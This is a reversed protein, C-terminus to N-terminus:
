PVRTEALLEGQWDVPSGTGDPNANYNIQWSHWGRQTIDSSQCRFVAQRCNLEKKKDSSIYTDYATWAGNEHRLVLVEHPRAWESGKNCIYIIESGIQEKAYPYANDRAFAKRTGISLTDPLEGAM